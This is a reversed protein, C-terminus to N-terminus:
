RAVIAAELEGLPRCDRGRDLFVGPDCRAGGTPLSVLGPIYSTRSVSEAYGPESGRLERLAATTTTPPVGAQDIVSAIHEMSELHNASM